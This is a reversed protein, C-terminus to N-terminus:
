LIIKGQLDLTIYTKQGMEMTAKANTTETILSIFSEVEDEPIFVIIKVDQEYVTDKIPFGKSLLLCQVKGLLTYDIIM